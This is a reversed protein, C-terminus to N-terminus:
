PRQTRSVDSHDAYEERGTSGRGGTTRPRRRTGKTAQKPDGKVFVLVNQHMKGLKRSKEFQGGVRIPLSAAPTIFIAENYLAFGGAQFAAITDSVFNRYLGTKKDRIDGVVFCAFAPSKM